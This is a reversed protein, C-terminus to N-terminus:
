GGLQVGGQINAERQREEPRQIQRQRKIKITIKQIQRQNTMVYRM